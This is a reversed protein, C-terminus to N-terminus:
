ARVGTGAQARRATAPACNAFATCQPMYTLQGAQRLLQEFFSLTGFKENKASTRGAPMIAFRFLDLDVNAGRTGDVGTNRGVGVPSRIRRLSNM